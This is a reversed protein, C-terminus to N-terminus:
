PLRFSFEPESNRVESTVGRGHASTAEESSRPLNSSRALSHTGFRPSPRPTDQRHHLRHVANLTKEVSLVLAQDAGESHREIRFRGGVCHLLRENLGVSPPFPEGAVLIRSAPDSPHRQIAQQVPM